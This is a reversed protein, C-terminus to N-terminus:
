KAGGSKRLTKARKTIDEANAWVFDEFDSLTLERWGPCNAPLPFELFEYIAALWFARNNRMVEVAKSVEAPTLDTEPLPQKLEGDSNFLAFEKQTLEPTYVSTIVLRKRDYNCVVQIPIPKGFEKKRRSRSYFRVSPKTIRGM